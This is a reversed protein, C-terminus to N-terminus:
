TSPRPLKKAKTCHCINTKNVVPYDMTMPEMWGEIRDNHISALNTNPDLKLVYGSLQYLRPQEHKSCGAGFVLLAAVIPVSRSARLTM